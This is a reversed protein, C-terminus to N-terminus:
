DVFLFENSLLLVQALQQRRDLPTMRKGTPGPGEFDSETDFDFRQGDEGIFRLKVKSTFSDFSTTGNDDGDLRTMVLVTAYHDRWQQRFRDAVRLPQAVGRKGTM